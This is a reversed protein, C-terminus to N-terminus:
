YDLAPAHHHVIIQYVKDIDEKKLGMKLLIEKALSPREKEQYYGASSGYKREAEKIGRDHLISAPLVVHWDGEEKKLLKEAFRMVRKAHNIRKSDNGFYGELKNLLKQRITM